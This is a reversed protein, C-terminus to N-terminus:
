PLALDRCFAAFPMGQTDEIFHCSKLLHGAVMNEFRAGPSEVRSWDLFYLKKEKRVARIRKAGFPLIRYSM